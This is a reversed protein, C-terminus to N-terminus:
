KNYYHHWLTDAVDVFNWNPGAPGRTIQLGFFGTSGAPIIATNPLVDFVTWTGSPRTDNFTVPLIPFTPASGVAFGRDETFNVQVASGNTGNVLFKTIGWTILDDVPSGCGAPAAISGNLTVSGGPAPPAGSSIGYFYLGVRSRRVQVAPFTSSGSTVCRLREATRSSACTGVLPGALGLQPYCSACLSM